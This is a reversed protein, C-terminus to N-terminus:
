LISHTIDKRYESELSNKYEIQNNIKKIIDILNSYLIEEAKSLNEEDINLIDVRDLELYTSVAYDVYISINPLNYEITELSTEENSAFLLEEEFYELISDMREIVLDNQDKLLNYELAATM